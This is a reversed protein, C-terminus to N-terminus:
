LRRIRNKDKQEIYYVQLKRDLNQQMHAEVARLLGARERVDTEESLEIFVRVPWGSLDKELHDFRM